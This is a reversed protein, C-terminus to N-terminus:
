DKQDEKGLRQMARRLFGLQQEVNRCGECFVFHLRLRARAAAPLAADAGDSLLRTVEQCTLKIHSM